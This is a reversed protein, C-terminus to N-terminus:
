SIRAKEKGMTIINYKRWPHNEPPIYKKREKTEEISAFTPASLENNEISRPYFVEGMHNVVIKGDFTELLIIQTKKKLNLVAGYENYVKYYQENFKFACGSDITRTYSKCLYHDLNMNEDIRIFDSTTYDNNAFMDNYEALFGNLFLNAKKISDINNMNLENVLKDQLTGFLREVTGKAQSISTTYLDIGLTDMSKKYHTNGVAKAYAATDFIPDDNKITTFIRRNDTVITSPIGYEEILNKTITFYGNLTEQNDFHLALVRGTWKDIAAHLHCTTNGFWMHQSADMEVIEGFIFEKDLRYHSKNPPVLSHEIEQLNLAIEAERIKSIIEEKELYKEVSEDYMNDIEQLDKLLQNDVNINEQAVAQKAKRKTEKQAKYSLVNNARLKKSVTSVNWKEDSGIPSSPLEAVGVHSLAKDFNYQNLDKNLYRTFDIYNLPKRCQISLIRFMTLLYEEKQKSAVQLQSKKKEKQIFIQAGLKAFDKTLKYTHQLTYKLMMSLEKINIIGERHMMFYRVKEELTMIIKIGKM